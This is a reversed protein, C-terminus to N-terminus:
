NEQYSLSFPVIILIRGWIAALGVDKRVFSPLAREAPIVEVLHM